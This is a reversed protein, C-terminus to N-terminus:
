LPLDSVGMIYTAQTDNAAGRHPSVHTALRDIADSATEGDLVDIDSRYEYHCFVQRGFIHVHYQCRHPSVDALPGRLGAPHEEAVKRFSGGDTEGTDPHFKTARLDYEAYGHERLWDRLASADGDFTGVHEVGPLRQSTVRVVNEVGAVAPPTALAGLFTRRRM